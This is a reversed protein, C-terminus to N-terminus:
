VLCPFTYRSARIEDQGPWSACHRGKGGIKSWLTGDSEVKCGCRRAMELPDCIRTYLAVSPLNRCVIEPLPRTTVANFQDGKCAFRSQEPAISPLRESQSRSDVPEAIACTLALPTQRAIAHQGVSEFTM